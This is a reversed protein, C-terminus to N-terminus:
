DTTLSIKKIQNYLLPIDNIVTKWIEKPILDAYDHIAVDRMAAMEKWPIEPHEQKIKKPAYKAAEGIVELWRVVAAQLIEDECFEDETKGKTAITIHEVADIIDQIRLNDERKM